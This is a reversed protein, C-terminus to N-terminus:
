RSELTEATDSESWRFLESGFAEDLRESKAAMIIILLGRGPFANVTTGFLGFV